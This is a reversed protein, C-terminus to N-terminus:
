QRLLQQAFTQMDEKNLTSTKNLELEETTFEASAYRELTKRIEEDGAKLLFKGCATIWKWDKKGVLAKSVVILDGNGEIKEAEISSIHIGAFQGNNIKYILNGKVQYCKLDIMIFLLNQYRM